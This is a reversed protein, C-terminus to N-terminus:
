PKEKKVKASSEALEYNGVQELLLGAVDDPVEFVEGPELCGSGPEGLPDGQRGAIPLDVQGLPNINRLSKVAVEQTLLPDKHHHHGPM